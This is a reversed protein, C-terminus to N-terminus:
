VSERSRLIRPLDDVSMDVLACTGVARIAVFRLTKGARKKDVAVRALVADTLWPDLDADLGTARLADVVRPELSRDALGLAQSVRAAAVLGLGIAEGHVLAGGAATEIAHGVTHGLNLLAREGRTEREDRSVIWAKYAVARQVVQALGVAPADTAAWPALAAVQTWTAEGDLLAYKWLEGFAARRERVPLTALTALHCGVLRPQWFAGILNKGADADIGTKGGIASDTMAVLTTPWHVVPVGRFLTAAAFGALDGVVGGGLGVVASTRDLGARILADCLRGYEALSKSAEGAPVVHVSVELGAAALAARAPEAWHPAVNSDTVLAVRTTNAPLVARVLAGDFGGDVVTIPYSREALALWSAPLAMSDSRRVLAVVQAAVAAPDLDDTAIAAHAGRYARAREDYLAALEADPRALLPRVADVHADARARARALEVTLAVVLGAARMRALNDGYAAAGGGTAIVLDGGSAVLAALAQAEARRFAAQDRAVLAAVPEGIARAIEDDLDVFRRGLAAAALRGVTSKGAAMFGVLFLPRSM